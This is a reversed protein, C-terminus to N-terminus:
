LINGCSVHYFLLLRVNADDGPSCGTLGVVVSFQQKWHNGCDPKLKITLGFAYIDSMANRLNNNSHMLQDKVRLSLNDNKVSRQKM